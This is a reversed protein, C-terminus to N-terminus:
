VYFLHLINSNNDDSDILVCLRSTLEEGFTQNRMAYKVNAKMYGLNDNSEYKKRHYLLSHPLSHSYYIINLCM